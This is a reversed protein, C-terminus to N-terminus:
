RNFETCSLKTFMINMLCYSRDASFQSNGAQQETCNMDGM